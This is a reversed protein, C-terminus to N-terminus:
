HKLQISLVPLSHMVVQWIYRCEITKKQIPLLSCKQCNETQGSLGNSFLYSYLLHRDVQESRFNDSTNVTAGGVLLGNLAPLNSSYIQFQYIEVFFDKTIAVLNELETM